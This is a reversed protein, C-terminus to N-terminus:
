PCGEEDVSEVDKEEQDYHELPVVAFSGMNFMKLRSHMNFTKEHNDKGLTYRRNPQECAM